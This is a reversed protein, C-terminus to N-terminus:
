NPPFQAVPAVGAFGDLATDRLPFEGQYTNAMFRGGPHLDNGWPYLWGSQGGRAAFEFEAETPLRKGAWQAYAVADDYAIHVVPFKERGKLDSAPGEPHRWDAGKQYSWWNYHHDLAVPASPPTFVTSGAVLNEVPADPYQEKTPTREAITRYGTAAVFRAFQENTVETADMWFGAVFVRHVPQTDATLGPIACLSEAPADCGMSFEGGPIWVMGDPAPTPPPNTNEITPLFASSVHPSEVEHTVFPKLRLVLFVIAALSAAWAM